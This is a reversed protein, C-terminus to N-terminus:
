RKPKPEPQGLEVTVALGDAEDDSVFEFRQVNVTSAVEEQV